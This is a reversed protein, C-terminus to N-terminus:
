QVSIYRIWVGIISVLASIKFTKEIGFKEIAYTAPFNLVFANVLFFTYAINVTIVDVEYIDAVTVSISSFSMMVICYGILHLTYSVMIFWRFPTSRFNFEEEISLEINMLEETKRSGVSILLSKRNHSEILQQREKSTEQHIESM